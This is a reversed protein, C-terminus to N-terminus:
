RWGGFSAEITKLIRRCEMLGTRQPQGPRRPLAFPRGDRRMTRFDSQFGGKRMQEELQRYDDLVYHFANYINTRLSESRFYNDQNQLLKLFLRCAASFEETKFLVAQERESIVGNWSMFYDFSTQSLYEAQLVLEQSLSELSQRHDARGHPVIRQRPQSSGPNATQAPLIAGLALAVFLIIINIRPMDGEKEPRSIQYQLMATLKLEIM